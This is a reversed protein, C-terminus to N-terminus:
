ADRIIDDSLVLDIVLGEKNFLKNVEEYAGTSFSRAIIVGRGNGNKVHKYFSDIVPRCVGFSMKVQIPTHDYCWGDIGGDRHPKNPTGGILKVMQKQFEFHGLKYVEERTITDAKIIKIKLNHDRVMRKKIVSIADPSLDIGLWRRGLNQASSVTTGCGCFADLVMNNKDTFSEILRDLLALPKQTPYGIREPNKGHSLNPIDVWLSGVALKFQDLYYKKYKKGSTTKYILNKSEMEKISKETYDGLTVIKFKRGNKEKYRFEKLQTYGIKQYPQKFIWKDTKSYILIYEIERSFQKSTKKAGKGVADRLWTIQNLFNNYGFIKDLEVRAYHVSRYDLHLCFVGTPSLLRHGEKLRPFLWRIYSQIGGGWEDNFSVLKKGWAKSKRVSGACFPPDIYIFDIQNPELERMVELNDGQYIVNSQVAKQPNSFIQLRRQYQNKKRATSM